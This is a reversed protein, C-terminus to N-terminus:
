KEMKLLFDEFASKKDKLPPWKLFLKEANQIKRIMKDKDQDHQSRMARSSPGPLRTSDSSMRIFELKRHFVAAILDKEDLKTECTFCEVGLTLTLMEVLCEFHYFTECSDKYIKKPDRHKLSSFEIDM